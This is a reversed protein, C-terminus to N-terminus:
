GSPDAPAKAPLAAEFRAALWDLVVAVIWLTFALQVGGIVSILAVAGHGLNANGIAAVIGGILAVYAVWRCVRAARRPAAIGAAVLQHDPAPDPARGQLGSFSM